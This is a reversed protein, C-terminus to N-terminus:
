CAAPCCVATRQSVHHMTAQESMIYCAHLCLRVVVLVVIGPQYQSAAAAAMVVGWSGGCSADAPCHLMGSHGWYGETLVLPLPPMVPAGHPALLACLARNGTVRSVTTAPLLICCPSFMRRQDHWAGCNCRGFVQTCSTHLVWCFM